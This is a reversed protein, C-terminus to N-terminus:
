SAPNVVSQIRDRTVDVVAELRSRDGPGVYDLALIQEYGVSLLSNVDEAILDLEAEESDPPKVPSPLKDISEAEYLGCTALVAGAYPCTQRLSAIHDVALWANGFNPMTGIRFGGVKKIMEILQEPESLLGRGPEVLLNLELRDIREMVRRFFTAVSYLDHDAALTPAVLSMANCGLRSAARAVVGIREFAKQEVQPDGIRSPLAYSERLILTPCGSQDAQTRFRDIQDLDWGRLVATDVVLGRLQLTGLVYAPLEDFRLAPTAARGVPMLLRELSRVTITLLM